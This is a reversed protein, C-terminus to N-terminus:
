FKILRVQSAAAAVAAALDSWSHGVRHSGMSPLGGPEGTEPIKWALTSSHTAMAKETPTYCQWAIGTHLITLFTKEPFIANSGPSPIPSHTIWTFINQPLWGSSFHFSHKALTTSDPTTLSSAPSDMERLVQLDNHPCQAYTHTLDSWNHGVRWSVISQLGGSEKIWPIRWALVSSHTAM